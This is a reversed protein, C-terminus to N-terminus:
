LPSVEQQTTSREAGYGPRSCEGKRREGPLILVTFFYSPFVIKSRCSVLILQENVRSKEKAKVLDAGPNMVAIYDTDRPLYFINKGDQADLEAVVSARPIGGVVEAIAYQQKVYAAGKLAALVVLGGGALPIVPLSSSLEDVLHIATM